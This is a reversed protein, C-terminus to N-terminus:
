SCISLRVTVPGVDTPIPYLKTEREGTCDGSSFSLLDPNQKTGAKFEYSRKWEDLTKELINPIFYELYYCSDGYDGNISCYVDRFAACDQLLETIDQNNCDTTTKLMANLINATLETKTYEEKIEPKPQFITFRIVFLLGLTILVVIVALGMIEAQSKRAM